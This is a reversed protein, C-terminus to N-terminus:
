AVACGTTSCGGAIDRHLARLFQMPQGPLAVRDGARRQEALATRMALRLACQPAFRVDLQRLEPAVRLRQLWSATGDRDRPLGSARPTCRPARPLAHASRRAATPM